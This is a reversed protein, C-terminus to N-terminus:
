INIKKFVNKDDPNGDIELYQDPNLNDWIWTNDTKILNYNDDNLHITVGFVPSTLVM